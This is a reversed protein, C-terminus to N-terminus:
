LGEPVMPVLGAITRSIGSRVGGPRNLQTFVQLLGAPIMLWTMYKLISNIGSRLESDVLTFKQAEAALQAAYAARGVKTAEFAGTGAVVFSGSMVSGGAPDAARGAAGDADWVRKVVPDCEGTLLSED